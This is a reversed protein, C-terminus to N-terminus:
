ISWEPNYLGNHDYCVEDQWGISRLLDFFDEKNLRKRRLRKVEYEEIWGNQISIKVANKTTM